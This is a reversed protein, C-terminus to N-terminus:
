SSARGSLSLADVYAQRIAIFSRADGGHDPHNEIALVRFRRKILDTSVPPELGLVRLCAPTVPLQRTTPRARTGSYAKAAEERCESCLVRWRGTDEDKGELFGARAEVPDQCEACWSAFKKHKM